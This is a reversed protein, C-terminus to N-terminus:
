RSVAWRWEWNNVLTSVVDHLVKQIPDLAEGLPSVPLAKPPAPKRSVHAKTKKPNFGKVPEFGDDSEDDKEDDDGVQEDETTEGTRGADPAEAAALAAASVTMARDIKLLWEVPLSVPLVTARNFVYLREADPPNTKDATEGELPVTADTDPEQQSTVIQLKDKFKALRSYTPIELKEVLTVMTHAMYPIVTRILDKTISQPLFGEPAAPVGEDRLALVMDLNQTMNSYVNMLVDFHEQLFSVQVDVGPDARPNMDPPPTIDDESRHPFRCALRLLYRSYRFLPWIRRDKPLQYPKYAYNINKMGIAQYLDEGDDIHAVLFSLASDGAFPNQTPVASVSAPEHASNSNLGTVAGVDQAADLKVNTDKNSVADPSVTPTPQSPLDCSELHSPTRFRSSETDVEPQITPSSQRLLNTKTTVRRLITGSAGDHSSEKVPVRSQPPPTGHDLEGLDSLALSETEDRYESGSEIRPLMSTKSPLPSNDSPEYADDDHARQSSRVAPHHARHNGPLSGKKPRGPGRRQQPPADYDLPWDIPSSDEEDILPRIKRSRGRPLRQVVSPSTSVSKQAHTSEYVPVRSYKTEPDRTVEAAPSLRRFKTVSDTDRDNSSPPREDPRMRKRLTSSRSSYPTMTSMNAANAVRSSRRRHENETEPVPVARKGTNYPYVAFHAPPASRNGSKSTDTRQPPPLCAPIEDDESSSSSSSRRLTTTYPLDRTYYKSDVNPVHAISPHTSTDPHHWDLHTTVSNEVSPLARDGLPPPSSM